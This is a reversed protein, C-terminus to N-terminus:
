SLLCCVMSCIASITPTLRAVSYRCRSGASCCVPRTQHPTVLSADDRREALVQARLAPSHGGLYSPAIHTSLTVTRHDAGLCFAAGGRGTQSRAVVGASARRPRVSWGSRWLPAWRPGAHRPARGGDPAGAAAADVDARHVGTTRDRGDLDGRVLSELAVVAGQLRNRYAASCSMQRADIAALLSRMGEAVESVTGDDVSGGEGM